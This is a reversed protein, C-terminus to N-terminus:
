LGWLSWLNAVFVTGTRVRLSAADFVRVDKKNACAAVRTGDPSWAVMGGAVHGGDLAPAVVEFTGCGSHTTTPEAWPPLGVEDALGDLFSADAGTAASGEMVGLAPSNKQLGVM